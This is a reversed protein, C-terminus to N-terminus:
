AREKRAQSLAKFTREQVEEPWDSAAGAFENALYVRSKADLKEWRAFRDRLIKIGDRFLDLQSRDHRSKGRTADIGAIGNIVYGLSIEGSLIQPEFLARHEASKAFRAHVERAQYFYKRDFGLNSALDEATKGSHSKIGNPSKGQLLNAHRRQRSEELAADFLPFALYAIASKTYHRRLALSTLIVHIAESAQRRAVPVTEINLQLAARLRDASDLDIVRNKEDVILPSTIGHEDAEALLAAALDEAAPPMASLAPHLHLIDTSLVEHKM